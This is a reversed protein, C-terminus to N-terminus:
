KKMNGSAVPRFTETLLTPSYGPTCLLLMCIITVEPQLNSITQSELEIQVLGKARFLRNVPPKEAIDLYLAIKYVAFM